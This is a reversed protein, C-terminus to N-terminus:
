RKIFASVVMYKQQSSMHVAANQVGLKNDTAETHTDDVTPHPAQM